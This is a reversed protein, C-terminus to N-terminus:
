ERTEPEPPTKVPEPTKTEANEEQSSVAPPKYSSFVRYILIIGLTYVGALIVALRTLPWEAAVGITIGVTVVVAAGGAQLKAQLGQTLRRLEILVPFLLLIETVALAWWAQPLIGLATVTLHGIVAVVIGPASVWVAILGIAVLLEVPRGTTGFWAGIGIVWAVEDWQWGADDAPSTTPGARLRTVARSIIGESRTQDTSM